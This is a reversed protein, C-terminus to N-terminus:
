ATRMTEGIDAYRNGDPVVSVVAVQLPEKNDIMVTKPMDDKEKEAEKEAAAEDEKKQQKDAEVTNYFTNKESNFKVMKEADTGVVIVDLLDSLKSMVITEKGTLDAMVPKTSLATLSNKLQTETVM